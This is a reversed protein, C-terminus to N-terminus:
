KFKKWDMSSKNLLEEFSMNKEKLRREERKREEAELKQKEEEQILASQAQKLKLLIDNNLSDQLTLKENTEERKGTKRKQNAKAM